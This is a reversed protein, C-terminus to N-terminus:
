GRGSNQRREMAAPPGPREASSIIFLVLVSYSVIATASPQIKARAPSPSITSPQPHACGFADKQRSEVKWAAEKLVGNIFQADQVVFAFASTQQASVAAKVVFAKCPVRRDRPSPTTGELAQFGIPRSKGLSPFAGPRDARPCRSRIRAADRPGSSVASRRPTHVHCGSDTLAAWVLSGAPFPPM